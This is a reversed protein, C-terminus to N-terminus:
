CPNKHTFDQWGRDTRRDSHTKASEHYQKINSNDLCKNLANIATIGFGPIIVDPSLDVLPILVFRRATLQSHPIILNPTNVCRDGYLLIDIDLARPEWRGREVKRGASGEIVHIQNLLELPKLNLFLEVVCNLFWPQEKLGWPESEYILSVRLEKEITLERLETIAKNLHGWRDGLNSGLSLFVKEYQEITM